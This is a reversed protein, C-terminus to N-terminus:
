GGFLRKWLSPKRTPMAPLETLLLTLRRREASDEDLRRRLDDREDKLLALQQKLGEIEARLVPTEDVTVSREMDHRKQPEPTVIEFVRMLEAPDIEYEGDTNRIASLKGSTIARHLTTKSKGTARAAKGLTYKVPHEAENWKPNGTVTVSHCSCFVVPKQNKVGRFHNKARRDRNM